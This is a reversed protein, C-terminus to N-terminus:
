YTTHCVVCTNRIPYLGTVGDAAANGEEENAFTGGAADPYVIGFGRLNGHGKHCSLCAAQATTPTAADYAPRVLVTAPSAVPLTTTAGVNVGSTPHRVFNIGNSATTNSNDGGVNHYDGHCVACYRNMGGTGIRFEVDNTAYTRTDVNVFIDDNVGPVRVGGVIANYAPGAANFVGASKQTQTGVKNTGGGLNRFMTSGHVAHCNGCHFGESAPDWVGTYGPPPAASGLTHGMWDAYGGAGLSHSGVAGNLAGASRVGSAMSQENEGFVDPANAVNNHCALCTENVGTQILLKDNPFAPNGTWGIDALPDSGQLGHARSAHMTHCESCKLTSSQHYDGALAAGAWVLAAAAFTLKKM